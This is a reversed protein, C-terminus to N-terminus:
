PSKAASGLWWLGLLVVSLGVLGVALLPRDRWLFSQVGGATGGRIFFSSALALIALALLLPSRKRAPPPSTM